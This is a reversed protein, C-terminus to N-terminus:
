LTTFTDNEPLNRATQAPRNQGTFLFSGKARMECYITPAAAADLPRAAGIRYKCYKCYRDSKAPLRFLRAVYPNEPSKRPQRHIM